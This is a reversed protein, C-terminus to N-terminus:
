FCVAGKKDTKIIKPFTKGCIKGTRKKMQEETLLSFTKEGFRKWNKV